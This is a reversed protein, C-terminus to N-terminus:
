LEDLQQLIRSSAMASSFLEAGCRTTTDFGTAVDELFGPGGGSAEPSTFLNLLPPLNDEASRQIVELVTGLSFLRCLVQFIRSPDANTQNKTLKYICSKVQTIIINSADESNKVSSIIKPVKSEVNKFTRTWEAIAEEKSTGEKITEEGITKRIQRAFVKADQSLPWDYLTCVAVFWGEWEKAPLERKDYLGLERDKLLKFFRGRSLKVHDEPELYWIIRFFTELPVNPLSLIIAQYSEAM